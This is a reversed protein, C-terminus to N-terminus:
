TMSLLYCVLLLLVVFHFREYEWTGWGATDNIDPLPDSVTAGNLCGLHLHLQDLCHRGTLGLHIVDEANLGNLSPSVHGM